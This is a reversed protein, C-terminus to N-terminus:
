IYLLIVIIKSHIKQRKTIEKLLKDLVIDGLKLSHSSMSYHVSVQVFTCIYLHAYIHKQTKREGFFKTLKFGRQKLNSGRMVTLITNTYAIIIASSTIDLSFVDAEEGNRREGLM